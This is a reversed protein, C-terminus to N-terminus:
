HPARWDLKMIKSLLIILPLSFLRSFFLLLLQNQITVLRKAGETVDKGFPVLASVLVKTEDLNIQADDSCKM